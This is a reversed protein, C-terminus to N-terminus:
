FSASTRWSCRSCRAGTTGRPWDHAFLRHDLARAFKVMGDKYFLAMFVPEGPQDHLHTRYILFQFRVAYEGTGFGNSDDYRL